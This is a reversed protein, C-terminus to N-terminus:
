CEKRVREEDGSEPDPRGFKLLVRLRERAAQEEAPLPHRVVKELADCLDLLWTVAGNSLDFCILGRNWFINQSNFGCIRRAARFALQDGEFQPHGMIFTALQAEPNKADPYAQRLLQLIRDTYHKFWHRNRPNANDFFPEASESQRLTA